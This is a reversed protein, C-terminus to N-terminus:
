KVAGEFLSVFKLSDETSMEANINDLVFSYWISGEEILPEDIEYKAYKDLLERIEKSNPSNLYNSFEAYEKDDSDYDIGVIAFDYGSERLFESVGLLNDILNTFVIEPTDNKDKRFSISISIGNEEIDQEGCNIVLTM